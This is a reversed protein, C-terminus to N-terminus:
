RAESRVEAKASALASVALDNGAAKQFTWWAIDLAEAVNATAITAVIVVQVYDRGRRVAGDVYLAL